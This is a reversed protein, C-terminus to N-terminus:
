HAPVHSVGVLKCLLEVGLGGRVPAHEQQSAFM